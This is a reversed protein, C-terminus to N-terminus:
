ASPRRVGHTTIRGTAVDMGRETLKVVLVSGLDNELVVLRMDEKLHNAFSM